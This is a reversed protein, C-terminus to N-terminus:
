KPQKQWFIQRQGPEFRNSQEQMIAQAQQPDFYRDFEQRLIQVRKETSTVETKIEQLRQQQTLYHPVLKVIASVAVVSLVVNAAIKATSQIAVSRYLQHRRKGKRAVRRPEVRRQPPKSPQIANM